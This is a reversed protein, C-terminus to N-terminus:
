YAGSRTVFFWWKRRTMMQIDIPGLATQSRISDSRGSWKKTKGRNRLRRIIGDSQFDSWPQVGDLALAVNKQVDPSDGM